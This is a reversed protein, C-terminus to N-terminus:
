AVPLFGAPRPLAGARLAGLRDRCADLQARIDDGEPQFPLPPIPGVVSPASSFTGDKRGVVEMIEDYGTVMLTGHYHEKAAPCKARMLDFYSRPDAITKADAYFDPETDWM